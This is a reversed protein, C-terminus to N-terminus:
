ENVIQRSTPSDSIAPIVHLDNVQIPTWSSKSVQEPQFNLQPVIPPITQFDSLSESCNGGHDSPDTLRPENSMIAISPSCCSGCNTQEGTLLRYVPEAAIMAIILMWIFKREM